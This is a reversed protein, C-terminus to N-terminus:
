KLTVTITASDSTKGYTVTIKVSVTGSMVTDKTIVLQGDKITAKEGSGGVVEAKYSVVSSTYIADTTATKGDKSLTAAVNKLDAMAATLATTPDTSKTLNFVGDDLESDTDIVM